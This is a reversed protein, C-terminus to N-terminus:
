LLTSLWAAGELEEEVQWGRCYGETGGLVLLALDSPCRHILMVLGVHLHSNQHGPRLEYSNVLPLQNFTAYLRGTFVLLDPPSHAMSYCTM